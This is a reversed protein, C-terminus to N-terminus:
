GIRACYGKRLALKLLKPSIDDLGVSKNTKLKNIRGEVSRNTILVTSKSPLISTDGPTTNGGASAHQSLLPLSKILNEGMERFM